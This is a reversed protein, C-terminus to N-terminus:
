LTDEIAKIVRGDVLNKYLEILVKGKESFLKRYETHCEEYSEFTRKIKKGNFSFGMSYRGSKTRGYTLKTNVDRFYANIIQPVFVCTKKSYEKTGKSLIDKDLCYLRGRTDTSNFNPLEEIDRAFVQFDYWDQHITCDSYTNNRTLDSCRGLMGGWLQSLRGSCNINGNVNNGVFDGGALPVTRHNWRGENLDRGEIMFEYEYKGGIAKITYGIHQTFGLVIGSHGSKNKVLQGITFHYKFHM